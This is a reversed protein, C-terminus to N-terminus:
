NKENDTGREILEYFRDSNIYQEVIFHVDDIDGLYKKMFELDGADPTKDLIAEFLWYLLTDRDYDLNEYEQTNIVSMAVDGFSKEGTQYLTKLENLEEDTCRRKLIYFYLRRIYGDIGCNLDYDQKEYLDFIQKDVVNFFGLRAAYERVGDKDPFVIYEVELNELAENVRDMDETLDANAINLAVYEDSDKDPQGDNFVDNGIATLMYPMFSRLTDYGEQGCLIVPRSEIETFSGKLFDAIDEIDDMGTDNQEKVDAYIREPMSSLVCILVVAVAGVIVKMVVSKQRGIIHCVCYAICSFVPVAYLLEYLISEGMLDKWIWLAINNFVFIIAFAAVILNRRLTTEKIVCVIYIMSVIFCIVLLSKGQYIDLLNELLMRM